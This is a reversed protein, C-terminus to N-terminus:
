ARPARKLRPLGLGLGALALLLLAALGTLPFGDGTQPLTSNPPVPAPNDSPRLIPIISVPGLRDTYENNLGNGASTIFVRISHPAKLANLKAAPVTFSITSDGSRTSQATTKYNIESLEIDWTLPVDAYAWVDRVRATMTVPDTFTGQVTAPTDVGGATPSSKRNAVVSAGTGLKINGITVEGVTSDPATNIINLKNITLQAGDAVNITSINVEGATTGTVDLNPALSVTNWTNIQVNVAGGPTPSFGGSSAKEINLATCTLAGTVTLSVADAQTTGPGSTVTVSGAETRNDWTMPSNGPSVTFDALAAPAMLVCLLLAALLGALSRRMTHKM